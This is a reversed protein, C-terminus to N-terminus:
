KEFAGKGKSRKHDVFSKSKSVHKQTLTISLADAFPLPDNRIVADILHWIKSQKASDTELRKLVEKALLHKETKNSYLKDRKSLGYHRAVNHHFSKIRNSFQVKGGAIDSGNMRGNVLPLILIHAHPASEDLHVDFSLIVGKFTEKIWDYTDKFFQSTDQLHRDVPLSVILELAMVRNKRPKDVGALIMQSKAFREISIADGNGTLSYNLYTREHNIHSDAGRESQLERKNHKLAALLINDGKLKDLKILQSTAM